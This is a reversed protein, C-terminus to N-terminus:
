EIVAVEPVYVLFRGGRRRFEQEKEMIEAGHNWAFLLAYDPYREKFREYPLVPIHMGPTFRGQKGPTTDSVFEVLDPGIGCFNTVTTSKSTAGYGVVRRGERRLRELMGVLDSRSRDVKRSFGEFTPQRDLGLAQERERQRPVSDAVRRRGKRAVTYRMSGGHVEQHSVDVIEMDHLDFVYSLSHLSFYYVHEDYIQDYSVRELIDGLYPDEFVLLGGEALLERIGRIVGHFSPVHCMVNAGLIVDAPGQEGVIARATEEDFFRCVTAIGQERAAQAVNASPEIGLHRIGARAFNRLMIGDNSGIEVVFPDPGDLYGRRVEEAFGAFHRSMRVSISSFYAYEAHFLKSPDVLNTLQVMSCRPCRGVQLEFFFEREYEEPSLFANAIPMRGFSHFAEVGSGCILCAPAPSPAGSTV